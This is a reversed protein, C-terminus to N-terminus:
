WPPDAIAELRRKAWMGVAHVVVGGGVLATSLPAIFATLWVGLGIGAVFAGVTSAFDAMKLTQEQQLGTVQVEVDPFPLQWAM